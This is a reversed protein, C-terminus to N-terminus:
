TEVWTHSNTHKVEQHIQTCITESFTFLIYIVQCATNHEKPRSHSSEYKKVGSILNVESTVKTASQHLILHEKGAQAISNSLIM